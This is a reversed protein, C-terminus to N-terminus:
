FNIAALHGILISLLLAVIWAGIGLLIRTARSM